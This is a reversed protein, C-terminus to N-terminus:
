NGIILLQGANFVVLNGNTPNITNTGAFFLLNGVTVADYVGFGLVAGWSATATGFSLVDNNAAQVPSGSVTWVSPAALIRAYGGGAVETGGGAKTPLATFLAVYADPAAPMNTAELAWRAVLDDLYDSAPV